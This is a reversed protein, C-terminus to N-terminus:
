QSGPLWKQELPFQRPRLYVRLHRIDKEVKPQTVFTGRGKHRSAFGQNKLALLAQRSTMRSVGYVHSLDEESPLPDGVRLKGSNIMKLLQAQIQFYMPIFSSKDLPDLELATGEVQTTGDKRRRERPM